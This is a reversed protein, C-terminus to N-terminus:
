KIFDLKSFVREASCNAISINLYIKITTYLNSFSLLVNKENFFKWIDLM